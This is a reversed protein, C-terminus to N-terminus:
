IVKDTTQGPERYFQFKAGDNSYQLKYKTVWQSHDQRGQTAVRTVRTNKNGLDVQLWQNANNNGAVRAGSKVGSVDQFHLRAQNPAHDIVPHPWESSATIQDDSIGGTEIGLAEKCDLPKM